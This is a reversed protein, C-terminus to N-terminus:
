DSKKTGEAHQRYKKGGDGIYSIFYFRFWLLLYTIEMFAGIAFGKITVDYNHKNTGTLILLHGM